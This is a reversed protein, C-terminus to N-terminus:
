GCGRIFTRRPVFDRDVLVMDAAKGVALSGIKDDLGLARAPNLSAMRVAEPLPVGVERVMTRVGVFLPAVSGAISGDDLRATGGRVEVRRGDLDYTGEPMGAM